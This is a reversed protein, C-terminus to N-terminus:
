TNTSAAISAPASNRGFKRTSLQRQSPSRTLPTRPRSGAEDLSYAAYLYQVMLAHEVEAAIQLLYIAKLRTTRGPISPLGMKRIKERWDEEPPKAARPKPAPAVKTPEMWSVGWM